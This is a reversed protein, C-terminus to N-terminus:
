RSEGGTEGNPGTGDPDPGGDAVAGDVSEGDASDGDLGEGNFDIFPNKGELEARLEARQHRETWSETHLHHDFMREPASTPVERARRVAADVEETAESAIAEIEAGDIHGKERLYDELRDLPDREAWYEQEAEDRYVSPEDATNHEVMRYTVCEILTPGEGARAREVARATAEYVAFVDNGDVREAPVGHADAKQAFTESATQRHAPVSIAWQNNQIVTVAPADYVGAFNLAEHFDGQSTSGDGIFSLTVTDRDNFRDAMASGVANTVNVALPVYIPTFNVEPPDDVPLHENITEPETGMLNAIARDLPADWYALAATQRYSPFCWDGPSLAAAAGLAVAEEGRSRAAISVEGRRQLFLTKDEFARTRVLSRYLRALGDAALDPPDGVLSGDPALVRHFDEAPREETWQSM